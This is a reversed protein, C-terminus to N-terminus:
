RIAARCPDAMREISQRLETSTGSTIAALVDRALREVSTGEAQRVVNQMEARFEADTLIGDQADSVAIIFDACAPGAPNSRSSTGDQDWNGFILVAGVLGAIVVWVWRSRWFSTYGVAPPDPEPAAPPPLGTM